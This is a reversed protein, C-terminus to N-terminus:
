GVVRMNGERAGRTFVCGKAEHKWNLAIMGRVPWQRAPCWSDFM